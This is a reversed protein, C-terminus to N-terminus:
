RPPPPSPRVRDSRLLWRFPQGEVDLSVYEDGDAHWVAIVEAPRGAIRPPAQTTPTVRDGPKVPQM